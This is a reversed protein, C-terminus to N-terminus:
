PALPTGGGQRVGEKLRSSSVNVLHLWVRIDRSWLVMENMDLYVEYEKTEFDMIM